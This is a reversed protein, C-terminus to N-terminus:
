EYILVGMENCCVTCIVTEEGTCWSTRFTGALIEGVCLRFFFAVTALCVSLCTHARSSSFIRPPNNIRHYSNQESGNGCSHWTWLPPWFHIFVIIHENLTVVRWLLYSINELTFVAFLCVLCMSSKPRLCAIAGSIHLLTHGLAITCATNCCGWKCTAHACICWSGMMDNDCHFGGSAVAWEVCDM